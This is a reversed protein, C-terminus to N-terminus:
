ARCYRHSHPLSSEPAMMMPVPKWGLARTCSAFVMQRTSATKKPQCCRLLSTALRENVPYLLPRSPRVGCSQSLRSAASTSLYRASSRQMNVNV